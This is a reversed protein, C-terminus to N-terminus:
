TEKFRHCMQTHVEKRLGQAHLLLITCMALLIDFIHTLSTCPIYFYLIDSPLCFKFCKVILVFMDEYCVM